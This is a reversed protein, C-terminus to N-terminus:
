TYAANIKIYDISLDTTFVRAKGNGNGADITVRIEKKKLIEKAGSDKGLGLGGDVVKLNDFYIAVKEPNIKVGSSGIAAMIRGWNPNQGYFATKVLNSNAARFAVKRAKDNSPLGKVFIEIFKTAGEGDLVIMRALSSTLRELAKQFIIFEKTGKRIEINGALRNAFCIVSDNTSTDGDITIMNFSNEVATRLASDLAKKGINADTLIFSLMTAMGSVPNLALKPHIMGSGKAVGALTITKGGIKDKLLVIKPFTDTTMIAEAVLPLGKDSLLAIGKSIGKRISEMPLQKGIIGTSAVYVMDEDIGLGKATLRAMKMANAYGLSGTCANANGSNAIIAIGKGSRIKKIDLKVPAAKTENTTFLGAVNAEVESFIIALDKRKNKKIGAYIGSSKFGPVIFTKMKFFTM